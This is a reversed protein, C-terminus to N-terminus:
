RLDRAPPGERAQPRPRLRPRARPLPPLRHPARLSSEDQNEQPARIPSDDAVIIPTAVTKRSTPPSVRRTDEGVVLVEGRM